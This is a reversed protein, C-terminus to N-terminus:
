RHIPAFLKAARRLDDLALELYVEEASRRTSAHLADDYHGSEVIAKEFINPNSTLGSIHFDHIYRALTGDDLLARNLNDLWLQQGLDILDRTHNPPIRSAM